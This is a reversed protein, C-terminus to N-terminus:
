AVKAKTTPVALDGEHVTHALAGITAWEAMRVNAGMLALNDGVRTYVTAVTEAHRVVEASADRYGKRGEAGGYFLIGNEDGGWFDGLAALAAQADKLAAALGDREHHFDEERAALDAPSVETVPGPVAAAGTNVDHPRAM